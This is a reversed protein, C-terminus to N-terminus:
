QGPAELFIRVRNSEQGDATIYLEAPGANVIAPLQLEIVYFGVYGPALTARTVEVPARDLFARVTAAIAPPNSLPAPIGTPWDPQVKGLGTALVQIRSHSRAMNRADLMLGTDADSLMPGGEADIFIAPSVTQVPLPFRFRGSAADIGLSVSPGSVEFPVQIQSGADSSALVPFDLNGARASNVRGGLVSVLSGPAAARSSLDAANVLRLARARHPAQTAYVGYGEVAVFLRNGAPDLKVDMVRAPPLNGLETWNSAPGPAELDAHAYFVGHDTAVYVAGATRDAAIGHGPTDPLNATLDDWFLGTNTTRLVHAGSGGVAALALRPAQSDVFLYEIPGTAQQPTLNWSRGRDTSVWIRGDFAGAYLIDGAGSVATINANLAASYTRRLSSDRDIQPYSILQWANASSSNGPPLELARSEAGAGEIEIKLGGGAGPTALIRRVALNPLGQNLGSWSLGGDMSRWVGYDNAVVLREPEGPSVALDRQGPGIVSENNYGTLNIWTRGGDDSQYLHTALAYIRNSGAPFQRLRTQADPLRDVRVASATDPHPPPNVTLNWTEFDATEFVKGSRTGAYLRGGDPGFWVSEVPGTAPSALAMEISSSGFKRWDPNVPDTTTQAALTVSASLALLVARIWTRKSTDGQCM